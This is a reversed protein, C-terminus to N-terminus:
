IVPFFFFLLFWGGFLRKNLQVSLHDNEEVSQEPQIHDKSLNLGVTPFIRYSTVIKHTLRFFNEGGSEMIKSFSAAAKKRGKEIM